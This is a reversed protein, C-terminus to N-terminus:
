GSRGASGNALTEVFRRGQPMVILARSADVRKFFGLGLMRQFLASGVSGALHTRRESWDMCLRCLTRRQANLARMDIGIRELWQEGLNSLTAMEGSASIYGAEIMSAKLAVGLTGALHDYCVRAERLAQDRPGFNRTNSETPAAMRMLGEIGAAVAPDVISFYRHRGQRVLAVLGSKLLRALHASATSAAVGGDLALETATRARGDMLASMMRARAPDGLTAAIAAIDPDTTM